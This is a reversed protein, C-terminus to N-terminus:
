GKGIILLIIGLLMLVGTLIAYIGLISWLAMVIFLVAFLLLLMAKTPDYHRRVKVSFQLSLLGLAFYLVGVIIRELNVGLFGNVLDIIGVLVAVLAGIFCLIFGTSVLTPDSKRPM